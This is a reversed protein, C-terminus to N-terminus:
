CFEYRTGVMYQANKSCILCFIKNEHLKYDLMFVSLLYACLLFNIM